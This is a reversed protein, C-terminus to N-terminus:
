VSFHKVQKLAPHIWIWLQRHSADPVRPRWLFDAPGLSGQPFQDAKYLHVSGQRAGTLCSAAAFTPGVCVCVRESVIDVIHHVLVRVSVCVRVCLCVCARMSVCVYVCVRVM